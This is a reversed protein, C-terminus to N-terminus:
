VLDLVGLSANAQATWVANWKVIVRILFRSCVGDNGFKHGLLKMWEPTWEEAGDSWAGSWEKKGWPNRHMDTLTKNLASLTM